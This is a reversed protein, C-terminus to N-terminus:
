VKGRSRLFSAKRREARSPIAIKRGGEKLTYQEDNYARVRVVSEKSETRGKRREIERRQQRTLKEM